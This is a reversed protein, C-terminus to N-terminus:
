SPHLPSPLPPLFLRSLFSHLRPAQSVNVNLRLFMHSAITHLQDRSVGGQGPLMKKKEGNNNNDEKSTFTHSSIKLINKAREEKKKHKHKYRRQKEKQEPTHSTAILLQFAHFILASRSFHFFHFPFVLGCSFPMIELKQTIVDETHTQTMKTTGVVFCFKVTSHTTQGFTKIETTKKQERTKKKANKYEVKHMKEEKLRSLGELTCLENSKAYAAM